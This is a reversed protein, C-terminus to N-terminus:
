KILWGFIKEVFGLGAAGMIIWKIWKIDVRLEVITGNVDRVTDEVVKLRKVVGPLLNQSM